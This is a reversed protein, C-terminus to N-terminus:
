RLDLRGSLLDDVLDSQGDSLRARAQDREAPTYHRLIDDLRDTVAQYKAHWTAPDSNPRAALLRDHVIIQVPLQHPLARANECGLCAFFSATCPTGPATDPGSMHDVCGTLVTDQEGALLGKLVDPDLGAEGAAAEPDQAAREIFDPSFVPVEMATRAKAVQERLAKGVVGRSQEQVTRSRKLYHDRLTERSHAVPRRKLELASQRIRRVQVAPPGGAVAARMSPFGRMQSWHKVHVQTSWKNRDAGDPGKPSYSLFARTEGSLRRATQTLELLLQYVRLPSHFLRPETDESEALERLSVPLDELATVMHERDPGRRPKTEEVLAVAQTTVGGDPRTHVAPWTKVTGFNEATLASLLMAFATSEDRTLCLMSAITTSGGLRSVDNRLVGSEKRPLDGTTDFLDLMRGLAEERSGPMLDGDRFRALLRVGARIRDRSVRVDRRLATMIQQWEHGSYATVQTTVSAAPLRTRLLDHLAEDTLDERRRMLRRLSLLHLRLSAPQDEYRDRFIQFHEPALEGPGAPVRGAESLVVAFRHLVWHYRKATALRKSGGRAGCRAALLVAMWQQMAQPVPFTSCDLVHSKGSQEEYFVVRTQNGDTSM